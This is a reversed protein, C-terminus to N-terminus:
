NNVKYIKQIQKFAFKFDTLLQDYEPFTKMNNFLIEINQFNHQEIYSILAYMFKIRLAVLYNYKSFKIKTTPALLEKAFTLKKNKILTFIANLLAVAVINSAEEDEYVTSILSRSLNYVMQPKLLLQVNAFLQIDKYSWITIQSLYLEVKTKENTSFLDKGTLDFYFNDAIAAKLLAAILDTKQYQKLCDLTLKKLEHTNNSQYFKSVIETFNTGRIKGQVLEDYSINLRDLLQNVIEIPMGDSLNGLEWNSLRTTTTIGQAANELSVHKSNRIKRFNIGLSNNNKNM